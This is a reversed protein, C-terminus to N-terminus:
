GLRALDLVRISRLDDALRQMDRPDATVVVDGRRAASVAVVADVLDSSSTRALLEGARLALDADLLEITTAARIQALWHAHGGRWAQGLAVTPTAMPVSKRVARELLRLVPRDGRELGILVGTDLTLGPVDHPLLTATSSLSCPM